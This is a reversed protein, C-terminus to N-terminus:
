RRNHPCPRDQRRTDCASVRRLYAMAPGVLQPSFRERYAYQVSYLAESGSIVKMWMTEPKGSLPNQPCTFQWVSTPFGNETSGELKQSAGGPCTAAWQPAMLKPLVDPDRGKLGFFFQQTAMRTWAEVTEGEPVYEYLLQGPPRTTYGIKFGTPMFLPVDEGEGQARAAQPALLLLLVALSRVVTQM